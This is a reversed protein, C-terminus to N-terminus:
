NATCARCARIPADFYPTSKPCLQCSLNTQNWYPLNLPCRSSSGLSIQCKHTINNFYYGSNCTTNYSCQHIKMNLILGQAQCPLVCSSNSLNYVPKSSPCMFCANTTINVFPLQPPCIAIKTGNARKLVQAIYQKYTTNGYIWSGNSQLNDRFIYLARNCCNSNLTNNM